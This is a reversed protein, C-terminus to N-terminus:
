KPKSGLLEGKLKEIREADTNGRTVKYLIALIAGIVTVAAGVAIAVEFIDPARMAAGYCGDGAVSVLWWRRRGDDAGPSRGRCIDRQRVADHV